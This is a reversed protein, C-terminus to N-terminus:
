MKRLGRARDVAHAAHRSFDTAVLVRNLAMRDPTPAITREGGGDSHYLHRMYSAEFPTVFPQDFSATPGERVNM